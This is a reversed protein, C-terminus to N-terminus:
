GRYRFLTKVVRANLTRLLTPLRARGRKTAKRLTVRRRAGTAFKVVHVKGPGFKVRDLAFVKRGNRRRGKIDSWGRRPLVFSEVKGAVFGSLSILPHRVKM